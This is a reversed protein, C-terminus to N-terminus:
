KSRIVRVDGNLSELTWEPGGNGIRVTTFGSTRYMSMSGEKHLTVVNPTSQPVVTFDSFLGGNFTRMRLNASAGDPVTISVEGNVTKFTSDSQPARVFSAAVPGNVTVASGSGAVDSMTIRGNVSRIKFNGRTGSVRVDGRNITCLDLLADRPIRITFDYRVSYHPPWWSHRSESQGDGCVGQDRYRVIAGVTSANDTTELQVERQAALMDEKNDALITKEVVMEVDQGDYAEVSVAGTADRIELRGPAPGRFHLTISTMLHETLEEDAAASGCLAAALTLALFAPHRM